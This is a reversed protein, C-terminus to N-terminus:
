GVTIYDKYVIIDEIFPNKYKFNIFISIQGDKDESVEIKEILKNAIIRDLKKIDVYQEFVNNWDSHQTIMSQLKEREAGLNEIDESVVKEEEKYENIMKNYTDDDIKGKLYKEVLKKQLNDIENLRKQKISIKVNANDRKKKTGIIKDHDAKLKKVEVYLRSINKIEGLLIESVDDMKIRHATCVDNGYVIYSNCDFTKSDGRYRMARGCEKCYMLGALMHRKKGDNTPRTYTNKSIIDQVLNFKSQPIIAEHTNLVRIQKDEPINLRKKVKYSAMTTKKQVLHGSYVENKLITRVTHYSWHSKKIRHRNYNFVKKHEAPSLINEENFIKAIKVYGYGNLYMDFIRVIIDRVEEDVILKHKDEPSKIYGYPAHSGIFKGQLRLSDQALRVNNSIDESYWENVIGNIQNSKRNTKDMNDLNDVLGICRVRKEILYRNLFIDVEANDRGIRSQNKVLIINIYGTEIDRKLRQFDPRDMNLGTYGDDIYIDYINWEQRNAYRSLSDTQNEISDSTENDGDERSLRCYIAVNLKKDEM